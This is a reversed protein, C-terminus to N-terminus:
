VLTVNMQQRSEKNVYNKDPIFDLSDNVDDSLGSLLNYM